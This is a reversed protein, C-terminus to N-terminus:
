SIQRTKLIEHINQFLLFIEGEGGEASASHHASPEGASVGATVAGVHESLGSRVLM